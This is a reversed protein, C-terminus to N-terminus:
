FFCSQLFSVISLSLYVSYTKLILTQLFLMSFINFYIYLIRYMESKFSNILSSGITTTTNALKRIYKSLITQTWTPLIFSLESFYLINPLSLIKHVDLSCGDRVDQVNLPCGSFITRLSKLRRPFTWNVFHSTDQFCPTDVDEYYKESNESM